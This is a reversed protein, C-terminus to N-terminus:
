FSPTKENHFPCCGKYERGAKQLKVTKGILASLSTQLLGAPFILAAAREMVFLRGAEVDVVVLAEVM